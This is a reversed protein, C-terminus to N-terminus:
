LEGGVDASEKVIEVATDIVPGSLPSAQRVNEIGAILREVDEIVDPSEHSVVALTQAAVIRTESSSDELTHYLAEITETFAAPREIVLPSLSSATEERVLEDSNRLLKAFTADHDSIRANTELAITALARVASVRVSPIKHEELARLLQDSFRACREPIEESLIAAADVGKLRFEREDSRLMAEVMQLIERETVNVDTIDAAELAARELDAGELTSGTLNARRFTVGDLDAGGLYEGALDAAEFNAGDFDAGVLVTWSLDTGSLDAGTLDAGLLVSFEIKADVLSANELTAGTLDVSELTAGGLDIGSLDASTLTAERLDADRLDANQLTADDLDTGTLSAESLNAGILYAGRLDTPINGSQIESSHKGDVEAHWFCFGRKGWTSRECRQYECWRSEIGQGLHKPM